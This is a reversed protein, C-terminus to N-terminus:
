ASSSMLGDSENDDISFAASPVPPLEQLQLAVAEAAEARRIIRPLLLQFLVFTATALLVCVMAVLLFGVPGAPGSLALGEAMPVLADGACAAMVLYSLM